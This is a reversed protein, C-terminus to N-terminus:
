DGFFLFHPAEKRLAEYIKEMKNSEAETIGPNALLTEYEKYALYSKDYEYTITNKNDQKMITEMQNSIM